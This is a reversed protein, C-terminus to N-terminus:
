FSYYPFGKATVDSLKAKRFSLTKAERAKSKPKQKPKTLKLPKEYGIESYVPIVIFFFKFNLNM